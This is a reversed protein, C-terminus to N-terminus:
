GLFALSLGRGVAEVTGASGGKNVRVEVTQAGAGVNVIASVPVTTFGVWDVVREYVKSADHHVSVTARGSAGTILMGLDGTVLLKGARPTTLSVSLVTTTGFPSFPIALYDAPIQTTATLGTGADGTDGQDGKEGTSGDLGPDGNDGKPGAVTSDAGSDGKGEGKEGKEGTDGTDGKEGPEGDAGAAGLTARGRM